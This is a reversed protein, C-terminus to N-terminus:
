TGGFTANWIEEIMKGHSKWWSDFGSTIVSKVKDFAKAIEPALKAILLGIEFLPGFPALIIAALLMWHSKIWSWAASAAYQVAHFAGEVIKRFTASREWLIAIGAALAAVAVITIGIPNDTLPM